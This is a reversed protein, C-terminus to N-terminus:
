TSDPATRSSPKGITADELLRLGNPGLGVPRRGTSGATRRGTSRPAPPTTHPAPPRGAFADDGRAPLGLAERVRGLNHGIAFMVEGTEPAATQLALATTEMAELADELVDPSWDVPLTAADHLECAAVALADAREALTLRATRPSQDDM